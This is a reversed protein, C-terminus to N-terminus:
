ATGGATVTAPRGLKSEGAVPQGRQQRKQGAWRCTNGCYLTTPNSTTITMGCRQCRITRRGKLCDLMAMMSFVSILSPAVWTQGWRSNRERVLLPRVHKTLGNLLEMGSYALAPDARVQGIGEVARSLEKARLVFSDVPECYIAWFSDSLPMPMRFRARKAKQISPFYTALLDGLTWEIPKGDRLLIAKPNRIRAPLPGVQFGSRWGRAVREHHVHGREGRFLSDRATSQPLWVEVLAETLLGLLGFRRCWQLILSEQECTMMKRPFHIHNSLRILDGYPPSRKSSGRRGKARYLNWVDYSILKAGPAPCIFGRKVVYDSWKWWRNEASFHEAM